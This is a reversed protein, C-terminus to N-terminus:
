QYKFAVGYAAAGLSGSERSARLVPDQIRVAEIM